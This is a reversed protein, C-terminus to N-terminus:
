FEFEELVEYDAGKRSLHSEILVFSSIDDRWLIEEDLQKVPSSSIESPDFRAITLHMFWEKHTNKYEPFIKELVRKLRVLEKPAKGEAWILRPCRSNPGYKVKTFSIEFPLVKVEKIKSIQDKINSEYWPPILTIHLNKGSLWRVKDPLRGSFKERWVLIEKQLAESIKVAVFLRRKRISM